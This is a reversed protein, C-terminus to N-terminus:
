QALVIQCSKGNNKNFGISSIAYTGANSTAEVTFKCACSVASNNDKVFAVFGNKQVIKKANDGADMLTSPFDSWYLTNGDLKITQTNVVNVYGDSAYQFVSSNKAGYSPKINTTGDIFNNSTSDFDVRGTPVNFDTNGNANAIGDETLTEQVGLGHSCESATGSLTAEVEFGVGIYRDGTTKYKGGIPCQWENEGSACSGQGNNTCEDFSSGTAVCYKTSLKASQPTTNYYVKMSSCSCAAYAVSALNLFILSMIGSFILHITRSQNIM